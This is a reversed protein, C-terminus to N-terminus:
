FLANHRRGAKTRILLISLVGVRCAEFSVRGPATFPDGPEGKQFIYRIFLVLPQM